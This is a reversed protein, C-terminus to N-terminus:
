RTAIKIWVVYGDDDLKAEVRRGIECDEFSGLSNQKKAENRDLYYITKETMTVTRAVGNVMITAHYADHDTASITGIVSQVNSVGPSKGIPIYVETAQQGASSTAFLIGAVISIRQLLARM